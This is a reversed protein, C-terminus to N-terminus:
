VVLAYEMYMVGTPVSKASLLKLNVRKGEPFLKKGGGLTLPYVHLHFEDVLDNTILTKLLVSSGDILINKGEKAKLQRLEEPVNSRIITSNSWADANELTTSVVIKRMKTLAVAFPDKMNEFVSHIQWTKRGLLLTDSEKFTKDFSAGIDDHWFPITWGGHKFEGETDESKGGPAQIVGDLTIFEHVILRRM